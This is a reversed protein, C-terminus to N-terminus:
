QKAALLDRIETLLREEASPTPSPPAPPASRKITNMLKVLLFVALAMLLFDITVTVFKGIGIAVEPVAKTIVNGADDKVADASEQLTIKIDSFDMKGAMLGIPPMMIDNVFSGALKGFAGGIIVGVAMDFVNGRVAFDRFEHIFKM